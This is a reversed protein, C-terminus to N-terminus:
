GLLLAEPGGGFAGELTDVEANKRFSGVPAVVSPSTGSCWSLATFHASPSTTLFVFTLECISTHLSHLRHIPSILCKNRLYSFVPLTIPVTAKSSNRFYLPSKPSPPYPAPATFPYPIYSIASQLNLFVKAPFAQYQLVITANRPYPQPKMSSPLIEASQLVSLTPTDLMAPRKSKHNRMIEWRCAEGTKEADPSLEIGRGYTRKIIQM